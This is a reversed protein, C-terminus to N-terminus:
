IFLTETQSLDSRFGWYRSLRDDARAVTDSFQHLGAQLLDFAQLTKQHLELMAQNIDQQHAVEQRLRGIERVMEEVDAYPQKKSKQMQHPLRELATTTGGNALILHDIPTIPNQPM